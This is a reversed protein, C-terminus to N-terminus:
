INVENCDWLSAILSKCERSPVLDVQCQTKRVIPEKHHPVNVNCSWTPNETDAVIILGRLPNELAGNVAKDKVQGVMAYIPVTVGWAKGPRCEDLGRQIAEM